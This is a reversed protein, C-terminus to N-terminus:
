NGKGGQNCNCPIPFQQPAIAAGAISVLGVTLVLLAMMRNIM